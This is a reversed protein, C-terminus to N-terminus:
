SLQEFKKDNMKKQERIEELVEIVISYYAMVKAKKKIRYQVMIVYFFVGLSIVIIFITTNIKISYVLSLLSILVALASICAIAINEVNMSELAIRNLNYKEYEEEIKEKEMNEYEKRLKNKIDIYGMEEKHDKNIRSTIYGLLEENTIIDFFKM